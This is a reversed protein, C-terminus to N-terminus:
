NRKKAVDVKVQAMATLHNKGTRRVTVIYRGPKDYAHWREAYDSNKSDGYTLIVNWRPNDPDSCSTATTGDGFDWIEEGGKNASFEEKFFTRVKFAVPQGVHINETPYCTLNMSPPTKEPTADPPLIQVVCFDVDEKGRNDRVTLMESYLGEQQYVKAAKIGDVIKGDHLNWRFSTIKGGDCISRSGDLEVTEGVAAVLHPRACALLEGPHENLYAEVLFPYGDVEGYRGSPQLSRISFHLHGWGGSSGEKGLVGIFDGAKIHDGAKLAPSLMDLHSYLYYWGSDDRIVVRDYRLDWGNEDHDSAVENGCSMVKGGHAAVVPVAKDHGGIDMGDHYYIYEGPKNLPLEGSGVCTRENTMQTMTAFWRQKVPYVLPPTGFLPEDPGWCRIRADKDFARWDSQKKLIEAMDHTLSCGIKVGNVLQPSNYLGAPVKAREGDVDITIEPFRIVGRVRCRPENVEMLKIKRSTGDKLRFVATEGLALDFVHGGKSIEPKIKM